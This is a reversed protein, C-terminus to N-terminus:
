AFRGTPISRSSYAFCRMSSLSRDFCSISNALFSPASACLFRSLPETLFNLLNLCATYRTSFSQFRTRWDGPAGM